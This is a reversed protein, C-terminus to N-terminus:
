RPRDRFAAHCKACTGAVAKLAAAPDRGERLAAELEGAAAEAATLLRRFGDGRSDPLRAAELYHERLLVADPVGKKERLRDWCEDIDAMLRTLDPVPAAEPFDAPADDPKAPPRAAAAYLGAYRPDTGARKLFAAAAEATFAGDLCRAAVAAAAPGRHQGHHCHLYVPGRLDRVARALAAARADSIGDYGIPLHAYRMGFRRAAAADPTAGDVSIITKVGLAQLSRYGTDGTPTGGSILRDNVRFVNHLGPYEAPEPAAPPPGGCGLVVGAFLVALRRM